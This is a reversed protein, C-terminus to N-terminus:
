DVLIRYGVRPFHVCVNGATLDTRLLTVHNASISHLTGSVSVGGSTPTISIFSDINLSLPDGLDAQQLTQPYSKKAIELADLDGIPEPTGHGIAKVLQEWKLLNKFQHLFHEGDKMRDRLFWVLYYALADPLGPESGLMFKRNQLREDMWGLQARVNALCHQYNATIDDVSFNEGFYLLGRDALFEPPMNSAMNVLAVNVVDKILPV